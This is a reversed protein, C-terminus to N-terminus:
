AGGGNGFVWALRRDHEQALRQAEYFHGREIAREALVLLDATMTGRYHSRVARFVDASSYLRMTLSRGAEAALCHPGNWGFTNLHGM